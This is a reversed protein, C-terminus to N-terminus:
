RGAELHELQSATPGHPICDVTVLVATSDLLPARGVLTETQHKEAGARDEAM